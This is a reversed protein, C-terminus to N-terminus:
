CLHFVCPASYSQPCTAIVYVASQVRAARPSLKSLNWPFATIFPKFCNCFLSPLHTRHKEEGLPYMFLVQITLKPKTTCNTFEAQNARQSSPYVMIMRRKPTFAILIRLGRHLIIEQRKPPNQTREFLTDQPAKKATKSSTKLTGVRPALPVHPEKVACTCYRIHQIIPGTDIHILCYIIHQLAARIITGNTQHGTLFSM